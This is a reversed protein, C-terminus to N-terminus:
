EDNLHEYYKPTIPLLNGHEDYAIVTHVNVNSIAASALMSYVTSEAENQEARQIPTGLTTQGTSLNTQIEQIIWM